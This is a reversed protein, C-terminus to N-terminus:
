QAPLPDGRGDDLLGQLLDVPFMAIIGDLRPALWAEGALEEDRWTAAHLTALEALSAAAMEPSYPELATLFRCGAVVLDNMIVISHGTADDTGVYRARPRRGPLSGSLQEYFRGETAGGGRRGPESDFYGKVCLSEIA